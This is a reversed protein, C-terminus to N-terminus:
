ANAGALVNRQFTWPQAYTNLAVTGSGVGGGFVGYTGAPGLNDRIVLDTNPQNLTDGLNLFQSGAFNSTNHEISVDDTGGAPDNLIQFLRGRVQDWYNQAILIRSTQQSPGSDDYASMNLGHDSNKIVNHEFTVDQVAAWPAQGNEGRP